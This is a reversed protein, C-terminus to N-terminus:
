QLSCVTLLAAVTVGVEENVSEQDDLTEENLGSPHGQLMTQCSRGNPDNTVPRCTAAFGPKDKSTSSREAKRAREPDPLCFTNWGLARWIVGGADPGVAKCAEATGGNSTAKIPPVSAALRRAAGVM